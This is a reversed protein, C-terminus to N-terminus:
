RVWLAWAADGRQGGAYGFTGTQTTGVEYRMNSGDDDDGTNPKTGLFFVGNPKWQGNAYAPLPAALDVTSSVEVNPLDFPGIVDIGGTSADGHGGNWSDWDSATFGFHYRRVTNQTNTARLITTSEIIPRLRRADLNSWPQDPDLPNGHDHAFWDDSWAGGWGGSAGADVVSPTNTTHLTAFLIWGGGDSTMDCYASFQEGPGDGDPDLGFVGSGIKPNKALIAACSVDIGPGCTGANCSGSFCDSGQHCARGNACAPCSGGCDQDTEDGDLMSDNCTSAIGSASSSAVAAGGSGTAATASGSGSATSGAGGAGGPGQSAGSSTGGSGEPGATSLLCAVPSAALAAVSTVLLVARSRPAVLRPRLM